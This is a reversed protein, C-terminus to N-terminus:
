KTSQNYRAYAKVPGYALTDKNFVFGWCWVVDCDTHTTPPLPYTLSNDACFERIRKPTAFVYADVWKNLTGDRSHTVAYFTDGVPLSPKPDEYTSLVVKLMVEKTVLDFKLGYWHRLTSNLYSTSFHLQLAESPYNGFDYWSISANQYPERYGDYKGIINLNSRSFDAYDPFAAELEALITAGAPTGLSYDQRVISTNVYVDDRVQSEKFNKLAETMLTHDLHNQINDGHVAMPIEITIDNKNYCAWSHAGETRVTYERSM